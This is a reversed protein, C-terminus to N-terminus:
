PCAVGDCANAGLNVSDASSGLVNEFFTNYRYASPRLDVVTHLGFGGNTRLTNRQISASGTAQIGDGTNGASLNGVALSGFGTLIGDGANDYATNERVNSGDGTSFSTGGNGTATNRAILSGDGAALATGGNRTLECDRVISSAGVAIGTVRNANLRLASAHTYEGLSVGRSGMGRISGNRITVATISTTSRTVGTGTGASPTCVLTSGSSGTCAVPGAIAYGGLDLTVGSAAVSIATTDADSVVVNSTLRYSGPTALTVPFGSSDGAFCGGTTACTQHIELVGDEASAIASVATTVLGIGAIGVFERLGARTRM